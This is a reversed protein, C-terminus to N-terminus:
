ADKKNNGRWCLSFFLISSMLLLVTGLWWMSDFGRKSATWSALGLYSLLLLFYDMKYDSIFNSVYKVSQTRLYAQVNWLPFLSFSFASLVIGALVHEGRVRFPLYFTPSEHLVNFSGYALEICSYVLMIILMKEIINEIIRM